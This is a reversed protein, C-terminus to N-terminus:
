WKVLSNSILFAALAAREGRRGAAKEQAGLGFSSVIKAAVWISDPVQLLAAALRFM